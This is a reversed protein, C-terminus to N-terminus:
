NAARGGDDMELERLLFAYEDAVQDLLKRTNSAGHGSRTDIRILRPRKSGGQAAQLAAAYKFSHAPVVRDDHDATTVMVAPYEPASRINHYPSYARLARYEAEVAVSGYEAIWNGGITFRHFRLMDMVGVGPLAARFLEPRQNVVAGVLLGGNSRGQIALRKPSTIRESVLWEGAAIFDDFVTQKNLRRGADHWARGYEGGGRLCARAYVGGRELWAILLPNFAPEMSIGYGGYGHLLVPNSGDRKMGRAHVLFMPVARGDKSRYFVEEVDYVSPDFSVRPEHHVSVRGTAVEYRHVTPARNFSSFSFFVQEDDSRGGFGDVAGAGPLAVVREFAGDTRHVRVEPLVDRLYTAFLRGGASSVGRLPLPGEPLVERWEREDPREPDICVVRGNPAGRDTHVLFKGDVVDVVGAWADTIEPILPRWAGHLGAAAERVFLANGDKGAERDSVSLWVWREDESVGVNHFRGGGTPDDHILVDSEQPTGVRHYWVQHRDNRAALRSANTPEPYRSYYFGDGCWSSGSAKVWRLREPLERWTSGDIVRLEVWDSGAQSRGVVAHRGDRSLCFEALKVTGDESWTNPDLFVRPEGDLGWQTLIRSQNLLGPNEFYFYREGRRFPVGVRAYDQLRELRQRLARRAPIRDLYARTVENQREVWARTAPSEADELWRYPDAVREGFYTDVVNTARSDPYAFRDAFAGAAAGLLFMLFCVGFRLMGRWQRLGDADALRM